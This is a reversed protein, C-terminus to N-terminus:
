CGDFRGGAAPQLGHHQPRDRPILTTGFTAQGGAAEERRTRFVAVLRDTHVTGTASQPQGGFSQQAAAREARRTEVGNWEGVVADDIMDIRGIGDGCSTLFDSGHESADKFYGSCQQGPQICQGAVVGQRDAHDGHDHHQHDRRQDELAGLAHKFHLSQGRLHALELVLVAAVALLEVFLHHLEVLLVLDVRHRGTQREHSLHRHEDDHESDQM